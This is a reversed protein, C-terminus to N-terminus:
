VTGDLLDQEFSLIGKYSQDYESTDPLDLSTIRQWVALLLKKFRDLEDAQYSIRTQCIEGTKTPEVFSLVGSTVEYGRYDRSHEVMLKYFMVQQTYKHLKIKEYDTKAQGNNLPKGTKYDTVIMTKTKPDIEAIDIM